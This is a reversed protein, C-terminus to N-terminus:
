VQKQKQSLAEAQEESFLGCDPEFNFIIAKIETGAGNNGHRIKGRLEYYLKIAQTDGRKVKRILATAVASESIGLFEDCQKEYWERFEPYKKYHDYFVHRGVGSKKEAEVKNGKVEESLLAKVFKRVSITLKYNNPNAIEKAGNNNGNNGVSV